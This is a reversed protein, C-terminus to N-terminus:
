DPLWDIRWKKNLEGGTLHYQEHPRVAGSILPTRPVFSTQAAATRQLRQNPRAERALQRIVM